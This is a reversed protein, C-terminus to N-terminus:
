IVLLGLGLCILLTAIIKQFLVEKSFQEKLSPIKKFLSLAIILVFVYQLGNFANTLSISSGWFVAFYLFLGGLVTLIRGLMFFATTKSKVKETKSFILKRNKKSFLLTLAILAVGTRVWVLGSIFNTGLFLYKTIVWFLAFFLAGGIALGLIGNESLHKRKFGIVFSGLVLLAFAIVQQAILFEKLILSSLILVFVSTMAGVFPVIRSVEGKDLAKYFCLFAGIQAVGAILSWFIESKNPMVFGQEPILFGIPILILIFIGLFGVWFSYNMPNPIPKALIYKDLISAIAYFIHALILALIWIM